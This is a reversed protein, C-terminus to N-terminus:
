HTNEEEQFPGQSLKPYVSVGGFPSLTPVGPQPKFGPNNRLETVVENSFKRNFRFMKRPKGHTDPLIPLENFPLQQTRIEESTHGWRRGVITAAEGAAKPSYGGAMEGIQKCSYFGETMFRPGGPTVVAAAPVPKPAPTPQPQQTTKSTATQYKARLDPFRRGIAIEAAEIALLRLDDDQLEVLQTILKQMVDYTHQRTELLTREPKQPELQWHLLPKAEEEIKPPPAPAAVRPMEFFNAKTLAEEIVEAQAKHATKDLVKKVGAPSLFVRGKKGTVPTIASRDGGAVKDIYLGEYKKVWKYEHVEQIEVGHKFQTQWDKDIQRRLRTPETYGLLVCLENAEVVNGWPLTFVLLKSEGIHVVNSM